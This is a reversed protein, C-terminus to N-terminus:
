GTAEIEVLLDERCIDALLFLPRGNPVAASLIDRIMPLDDRRRVYVKLSLDSLRYRPAGTVRNAEALLSEINTLTERTQAAVDGVHLTEYGVISATGSIFLSTGQSGFLCARAFLPSHRGFKPPYHYASTQRPNELSRPARCAALFYLSLPSGQPSGLACAAPVAGTIARGVSKFSLQRAANFRRYREEGAVEVNIDPLYNWVRVLHRHPTEELVAFMQRYADDTARMLAAAKSQDDAAADEPVRVCGFLVEDSYRYRLAGREIVGSLVAGEPVSIVECLPRTPDLQPTLTATAPAQAFPGPPADFGIIGLV